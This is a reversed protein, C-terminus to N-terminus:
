GRALAFVLLILAPLFLIGISLGTLWGCLFTIGAAIGFQLRRWYPDQALSGGVALAAALLMVGTFFWVVGMDNPGSEGLIIALYLVAVGVVLAAAVLGPMRATM